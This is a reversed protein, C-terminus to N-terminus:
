LSRSQWWQVNFYWGFAICICNGIYTRNGKVLSDIAGLSTHRLHEYPKEKNEIALLPLLYTPIGNWRWKPPKQDSSLAETPPFPQKTTSLKQSPSMSKPRTFPHSRGFAESLKQIEPLPFAFPPHLAFPLPSSFYIFLAVCAIKMKSQMADYCILICPGQCGSTYEKRRLVMLSSRGSEFEHRQMGYSRREVHLLELDPWRLGDCEAAWEEKNM